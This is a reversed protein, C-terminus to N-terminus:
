TENAYLGLLLGAPLLSLKAAQYLLRRPCSCVVSMIAKIDAFAIM